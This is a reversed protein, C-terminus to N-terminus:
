NDNDNLYGIVNMWIVMYIDLKIVPINYHRWLLSMGDSIMTIQHAQEVTQEPQCLIIFGFSRM